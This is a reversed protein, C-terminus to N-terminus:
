KTFRRFDKAGRKDVKEDKKKNIFLYKSSTKKEDEAFLISM